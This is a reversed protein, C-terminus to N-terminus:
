PMLSLGQKIYGLAQQPQLRRESIQSLLLLDTQAPKLKIAKLLAKEALELENSYFAVHGLTSYLSADNSDRKIWRELLEITMAANSVKLELFLPFLFPDREHKQWEVLHTQADSHMGQALLQEVFAARYPTATRMKRPLTQWYAKLQNAGQKSAIEAFKGKAIRKSWAHFDDKSLKKRWGNLQQELERWHGLSALLRAKFRIVSAKGQAKDDLSLLRELAAKHKGESADLNALMVTAATKAHECDSAELLLRRAQEKDDQNLYAQASALYNVGDFDGKHTKNLCALAQQADGEALAHLGDYFARQRKREGLVGFWRHSGQFLSLAWVLLRKVAWWVFALAVVSIVLSIVTMEIATDGLMVLVYGTDGLIEPAIILATILLAILALAYVLWRM